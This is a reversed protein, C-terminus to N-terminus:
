KKFKQVKQCSKYLFVFICYWPLFFLCLCLIFMESHHWWNSCQGQVIPWASSQWWSEASIFVEPSVHNVAPCQQTLYWWWCVGCPKGPESVCNRIQSRFHVASVLSSPFVCKIVQERNHVCQVWESVEKCNYKIGKNLQNQM